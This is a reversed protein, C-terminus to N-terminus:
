TALGRVLYFLVGVMVTLSPGGSLMALHNDDTMAVRDDGSMM